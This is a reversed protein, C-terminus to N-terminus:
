VYLVDDLKVGGLSPVERLEAAPVRQALGHHPRPLRIEGIQGVHSQQLPADLDAECSYLNLLYGLTSRAAHPHSPPTSVSADPRVLWAPDYEFSASERAGHAAAPAPVRRPGPCRLHRRPDASHAELHRGREWGGGPGGGAAPQFRDTRIPISALLRNREHESRIFGSALLTMAAFVTLILLASVLNGATRNGAIRNGRPAGRSMGGM